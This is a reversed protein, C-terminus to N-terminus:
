PMSANTFGMLVTTGAPHCCFQLPQKRFGKNLEEPLVFHLRGKRLQQSYDNPRFIEMVM